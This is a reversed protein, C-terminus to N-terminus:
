HVSELRVYEKGLDCTGLQDYASVNERDDPLLCALEAWSNDVEELPIDEDEFEDLDEVPATDKYYDNPHSCVAKCVAYADDFTDKREGEIVLLEDMSVKFPHNLM